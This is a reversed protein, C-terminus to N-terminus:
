DTLFHGKRPKTPPPCKGRLWDLLWLLGGFVCLFGVFFEM